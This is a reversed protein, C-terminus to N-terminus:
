LTELISINGKVIAEQNVKHQAEVIVEAQFTELVLWTPQKLDPGIVVLCEDERIPNINTRLEFEKTLCLTFCSDSTFSEARLAEDRFWYPIDEASCQATKGRTSNALAYSLLTDETTERPPINTLGFRLFRNTGSLRGTPKLIIFVPTDIKLEIEPIVVCGTTHSLTAHGTEDFVIQDARMSINTLSAGLSSQFSLRISGFIIEGFLFLTDVEFDTPVTSRRTSEKEAELM